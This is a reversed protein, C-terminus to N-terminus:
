ANLRRGTWEALANSRADSHADRLLPEGVTVVPRAELNKVIVNIGNASVAAQHLTDRRFCRRQRTVQAEVVKTPDVVVVVDGDFSVRMDGKCFVNRRSKQSIAPVNQPHAVGVVDLADLVSEVDKALGLVTGREDHQVAMDTVTGRVSLVGSGGVALRETIILDAERLLEVAPGLIGLKEHGVADVFM